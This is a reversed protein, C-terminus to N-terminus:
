SARRIAEILDWKGMKSRGRIGRAKAVDYLDQRTRDELNRGPSGGRQRSKAAQRSLDRRTEKPLHAITKKARAAKQAKKVNRRAAQTQKQTMYVAQGRERNRFARQGAAGAWRTAKPAHASKPHDTVLSWNGVLDRSGLLPPHVCCPNSPLDVVRDQQELMLGHEGRALAGLRVFAGKQVGSGGHDVDIAAALDGPVARPLDHAIRDDPKRIRDVDNREDTPDLLHEDVDTGVEADRGAPDLDLSAATHPNRGVVTPRVALQARDAKTDGLAHGHVPEREVAVAVQGPEVPDHRAADGVRADRRQRGLEAPRDADVLDQRHHFTVQGAQEGGGDVGSCHPGCRLSSRTLTAGSPRRSSRRSTRLLAVGISFFGDQILVVARIPGSYRSSWDRTLRSPSCVTQWSAPQGLMKSHQSSRSAVNRMPPSWHVRRQSKQRISVPFGSGSSRSSGRRTASDTWAM